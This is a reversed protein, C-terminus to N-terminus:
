AVFILKSGAIVLVAALLIPVGRVPLRGSGLLSGAGGVMAALALALAVELWVYGPLPEPRMAEANRELVRTWRTPLGPRKWAIAPRVRAWRQPDKSPM